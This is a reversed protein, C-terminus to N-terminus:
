HCVTFIWILQSRWFGVSRSRCQKCFCTMEVAVDWFKVHRKTLMTVAPQSFPLYHLSKRRPASQDPDWTNAWTNRDLCNLSFIMFRDNQGASGLYVRGKWVSYIWILQNRSQLWSIQIQVTQWETHSNIDFIQFLSDSQNTMLLLCPM